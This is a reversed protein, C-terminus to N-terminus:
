NDEIMNQAIFFFIDRMYIIGVIKGAKDLVPLRRLHHKLLLNLCEAITCDNHVIIVPSTMIENVKRNNNKEALCELMEDGSLDGSNMMNIYSPYIAKLIDAFSLMGVLREYGDIVPLAAIDNRNQEKATTRLLNVAQKLTSGPKLYNHVPIALDSAKM